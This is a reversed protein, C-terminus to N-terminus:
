AVTIAVAKPVSAARPKLLGCIGYLPKIIAINIEGIITGSIIVAAPINEEICSYIKNISECTYNKCM